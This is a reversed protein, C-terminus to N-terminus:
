AALLAARYRHRLKEIEDSDPGNDMKNMKLAQAISARDSKAFQLIADANALAEQLDKTRDCEGSRTTADKGEPTLRDYHSM